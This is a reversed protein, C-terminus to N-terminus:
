TGFHLFVHPKPLPLGTQLWAYQVLDPQGDRFCESTVCLRRRLRLLRRCAKNATRNRKRGHRERERERERGFYLFFSLTIYLSVFQFSFVTQVLDPAFGATHVTNADIEAHGFLLALSQCRLTTLVEHRETYQCM